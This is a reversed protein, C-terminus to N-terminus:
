IRRGSELAFAQALPVLLPPPKHPPAPPLPPLEGAAAQCLGPFASSSLLLHPSHAVYSLLLQSVAELAEAARQYQEKAEEKSGGGGQGGLVVTERGRRGEKTQGGGPSALPSRPHTPATPPPPRPSAWLLAQHLAPLTALVVPPVAGLAAEVQPSARAGVRPMGLIQPVPLPRLLV